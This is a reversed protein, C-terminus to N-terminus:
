QEGRMTTCCDQQPACDQLRGAIRLAHAMTIVASLADVCGHSRPLPIQRCREDSKTLRRGLPCSSLGALSEFDDSDDAKGSIEPQKTSQIAGSRRPDRGDARQTCLHTESPTM